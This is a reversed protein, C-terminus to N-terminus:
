SNAKKKRGHLPKEIDKRKVKLKVSNIKLIEIKLLTLSDQLQTIRKKEISYKSNIENLKATNKEDALYKGVFYAVTM